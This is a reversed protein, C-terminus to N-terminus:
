GDLWRTLSQRWRQWRSQQIESEGKNYHAYAMSPDDAYGQYGYGGYGDGYGYGYGVAGSNESRPQRANTVLGLVPAGAQRIRRITEKPLNRDVRSLSVLVILGDLQEAVLASDALGLAPPTDYIILDYSGSAAIEKVLHAMRKSSLLRPPDPPTRGATIVDWGGANPVAQVCSRWDSEEDTLLNSLGTVNDLGIRHHLQPKRLDADVLLVRQGLESLTKALLVVVLSKGESPVSSTLAISRLPRDSNLFRLSTALNRFAEQHHFRQYTSTDDSAQDLAELVFRQDRRVGEFLRMYPVHGLLTEGLDEAVEGPNHFVHDLRERLLAAGVGAAAGLLLAQLLGRGVNPAVPNGGVVAPAIVKWPATNQAIELQFQERANLYSLLNGEAIKLQQELNAYERLLGPQSEFRGELQAIQNQTTSITNRYQDLASSIATLQKTQIQPVLSARAAELQRLIPTGAVYRSRADALQIDLNALEALEAQDPVTFQVNTGSSGSNTQGATGDSSQSTVSRTVLNGASVESRLRELRGLESQQSILESRLEEVQGRTAMAETEPQLLRHQLRFAQVQGQIANAKAELEPAQEDLFRVAEQLRERRQALSWGLYTQETLELTRALLARDGGSVEVNLVGAAARQNGRGGDQLVRVAPLREGPFAQRLQSFVPQLVVPSELVRTLTPLDQQTRNLAVAGISSAAGSERNGGGSTTPSVPDTILLTFSGQYVPHVLRQYALWVTSSAAVLVLTSLFVRKRRRLVKLLQELQFGQEADTNEIPVVNYAYPTAAVTAPTNTPQSTSSM